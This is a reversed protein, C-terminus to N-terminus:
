DGFPVYKVGFMDMVKELVKINNEGYESLDASHLYDLAYKIQEIEENEELLEIDLIADKSLTPITSFNNILHGKIKNKYFTLCNLDMIFIDKEEDYYKHFFMDVFWQDFNTKKADLYVRIKSTPLLIIKEENKRTFSCVRIEDIKFEM